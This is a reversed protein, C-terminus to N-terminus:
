RNQGTPTLGERLYAHARTLQECYWSRGIGLREAKMAQTGLRTYEFILIFYLTRTRDQTSLAAILSDIRASSEDEDCHTSGSYTARIFAPNVCATDPDAKVRGQGFCLPCHVFPAQAGVRHGAVRGRGQCVICKTSPMGDLFRGLLTVRPWGLGNTTRTHRWRAWRECLAVVDRDQARGGTIVTMPPVARTAPLASCVATKKM